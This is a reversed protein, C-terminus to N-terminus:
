ISSRTTSRWRQQSTILSQLNMSRLSSTRQMASNSPFVQSPHLDQWHCWWRRDGVERPPTLIVNSIIIGCPPYLLFLHLNDHWIKNPFYNPSSCYPSSLNQHPISSYLTSTSIANVTSNSAANKIPVASDKSSSINAVTKLFDEKIASLLMRKARVMSKRKEM